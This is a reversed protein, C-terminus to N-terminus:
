NAAEGKKHGQLWEELETRYFLYSRGPRYAPLGSKQIYRRLTQTSVRLFEAAEKLTILEERNEEERNEDM